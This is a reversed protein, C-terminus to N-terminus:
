TAERRFQHIEKKTKGEPRKLNGLFEGIEKWSGKYEEALRLGVFTKYPRERRKRYPGQEVRIGRLSAEIPEELDNEEEPEPERKGRPQRSLGDPGGNLRGPVHKVDFDFLRIWAIWRTLLAGPLDNAPLNLQHVLTNTDTEVLFRVAYVYNGFKKIAKMLGGCERKGADYREEAKKWLGSEYRCPHRDENEYEQQLIAGWGELSADVAIVIQRAGDSVDLRKLAPANCLAEKLIAMAKKEETEWQFEVDKRLIRFLPGAVIAYEPIWIRYYTCLGSIGQV